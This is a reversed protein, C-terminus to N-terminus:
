LIDFHVLLIRYVFQDLIAVLLMFSPLKPGLELDKFPELGERPVLTASVDINKQHLNLKGLLQEHESQPLAVVNGNGFVQQLRLVAQAVSEVVRHNAHRLFQHMNIDFRVELHLM